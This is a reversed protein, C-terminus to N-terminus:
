CNPCCSSAACIPSPPRRWPGPLPLVSEVQNEPVGFSADNFFDTLKQDTLGPHGAVLGNYRDLQDDSHAPHTGFAKNGLIDALTANGNGGPPLIDDCQGHCYDTVPEAAAAGSQPSVAPLTTGLALVAAVAAARFKVTRLPM